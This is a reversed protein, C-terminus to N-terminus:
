RSKVGSQPFKLTEITAVLLTKGIYLPRLLLNLDVGIMNIILIKYIPRLHIYLIPIYLSDMGRFNGIRHSQFQTGVMAVSLIQVWLTSRVIKVVISLTLSGSAM